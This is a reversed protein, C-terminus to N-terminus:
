IIMLVLLVLVLPAQLIGLMVYASDKHEADEMDMAHKIERVILALLTTIIIPLAFVVLLDLIVQTVHVHEMQQVHDM